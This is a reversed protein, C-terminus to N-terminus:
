SHSAKGHSYESHTDLRLNLRAGVCLDIGHKLAATHARVMGAMTMRDALGISTFGLAAACAILEEPHSAGELFSFNSIVDLEVYPCGDSM